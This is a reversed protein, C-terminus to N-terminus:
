MGLADTVLTIPHQASLLPLEAHVYAGGTGGNGIQVTGGLASVRERMGRLGFADFAPGGPPLGVGDDEVRVEVGAERPAVM